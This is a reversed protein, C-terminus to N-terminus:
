VRERCSARGIEKLANMKSSAFVNNAEDSTPTPVDFAIWLYRCLLIAFALVVLKFAIKLVPFIWWLSRRVPVPAVFPSDEPVGHPEPDTHRRPPSDEAVPKTAAPRRPPAGGSKSSPSSLLVYASNVAKLKAEAAEKLAPDGQFRDPHWVKVLLRYAAKIEKETADTGLELVRLAACRPCLAGDEEVPNGCFCIM